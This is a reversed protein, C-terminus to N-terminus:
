QVSHHTAPYNLLAIDPSQQSLLKKAIKVAGEAAGNGQSFHLSSTIHKFGYQEAFVHFENCAFQPGNDSVIVEPIGHIAFPQKMKNIVGSATTTNLYKVEVWRSFYGSLM